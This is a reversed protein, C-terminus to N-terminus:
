KTKALLYRFLATRSKRLKEQPTAKVRDLVSRITSASYHELVGRFTTPDSEGLTELIERLLTAGEGAGGDEAGIAISKDTSHKFTYSYSSPQLIASKPGQNPWSVFKLTLFPLPSLSRIRGAAKLDQLSNQLSERTARLRAILDSERAMALRESNAKEELVQLLQETM